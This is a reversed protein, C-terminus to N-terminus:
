ALGGVLHTGARDPPLPPDPRTTRSERAAGRVKLEVFALAEPPSLFAALAMYATKPLLEPVRRAQGGAVARHLIFYIAAGIAELCLVPLGAGARERYGQELFLTFADRSHQALRIEEEGAAYVEVLALQAEAPHGAIYSHLAALGRWVREPWTGGLSFQEAAAAISRQLNIVQVARFADRKDRFETYFAARQVQAAAVIDAVRLGAFGNRATLEATAQIMRERRSPPEAERGQRDRGAAARSLAMSKGLSRWHKEDPGPEAVDVAYSELWRALQSGLLELEDVRGFCVRMSAIGVAAGLGAAPPMWVLPEGATSVTQVSHLLEVLHVMLAEYQFRTSPPGAIAELLILRAAAPDARVERLFADLVTSPTSASGAEAVASCVRERFVTMTARCCGVFCAERNEFHKYFTVRSVGAADSVRAVSAAAYGDAAVVGKMADLLRLRTDCNGGLAEAEGGWTM